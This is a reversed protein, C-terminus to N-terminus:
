SVQLEKDQPAVVIFVETKDPVLAAPGELDDGMAAELKKAFGGARSKKGSKKVKTKKPEMSQVTGQVCCTCIAATWWNLHKFHLLQQQEDCFCCLLM